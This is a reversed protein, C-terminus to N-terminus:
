LIAFAGKNLGSLEVHHKVRAGFGGNIGGIKIKNDAKETVLAVLVDANVAQMKAGETKAKAM